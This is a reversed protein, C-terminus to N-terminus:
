QFPEHDFSQRWAATRLREAEFGAGTDKTLPLHKLRYVSLVKAERSDAGYVFLGTGARTRAAEDAFIAYRFDSELGSRDLRNLAERYLGGLGSNDKDAKERITRDWVYLPYMAEAGPNRLPDADFVMAVEYLLHLEELHKFAQQFRCEDGDMCQDLFLKGPLVSGSPKQIIWFHFTRSDTPSSGRYGLEMYRDTLFGTYQWERRVIKPNVGGYDLYSHEEYLKLLLRLADLRHQKPQIERVRMLPPAEKGAGIGEVLTNPMYIRNEGYIPLAKVPYRGGLKGAGEPHTEAWVRYDVLAADTPQEGWRVEKLQALVQDARHRTLGLKNAIAPAGATTVRSEPNVHKSLVLYGLVADAWNTHEAILQIVVASVSFFHGTM